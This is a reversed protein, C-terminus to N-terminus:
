VFFEQLRLRAEPLNKFSTDAFLRHELFYSTLKLGNLIAEGQEDNRGILFGPLALMNHKYPEGKERSVAIGSKPSVYCLDSADGGGACRSLDLGFGLEKLLALEWIIYSEIWFEGNLQELLAVSGHFLGPHKEREPLTKTMLSCASQLACLKGSHDMLQTASDREMEFSFIGLNQSSKAQWNVQVLNGPQLISRKSTSKAGHVYGAMKGMHNTLVNVIAANEGHARTELIIAQDSLSEM